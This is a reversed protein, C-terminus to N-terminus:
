KSLNSCSSRVREATEEVSMGSTDIKIAGLSRSLKAYMLRQFNIYEESDTMIGRRREIEEYDSDFHILISEKPILCLMMRAVFSSTFNPDKLFYAISVISDILYRDAIVVRRMLLPLYVRLIILPMISIFEIWSWILRNMSYNSLANIRVITGESNLKISRPSLKAYIRLLIYALTHHSKIWVIKVKSGNNMFYRALIRAHTSKGSGDPGFISIFLRM